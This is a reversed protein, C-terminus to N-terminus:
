AGKRTLRGWQDLPADFDYSNVQLYMSTRDFNTGGHWMYYNWTTGGAAVFRLLHYSINRADRVHHQRSLYRLGALTRDVDVAARM